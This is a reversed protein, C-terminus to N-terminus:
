TESYFPVNKPKNQYYQNIIGQDQNYSSASINPKTFTDKYSTKLVEPDYHKQAVKPPQVTPAKEIPIPKFNAHHTTEYDHKIKPKNSYYTNACRCDETM